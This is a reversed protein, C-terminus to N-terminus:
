DIPFARMFAVFVPRQIPILVSAIIYTSGWLIPTLMTLLTDKTQKM